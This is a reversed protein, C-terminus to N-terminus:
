GLTQMLLAISFFMWAKGLQKSHIRTRRSAIWMVITASLGLFIELFNNITAMEKEPVIRTLFIQLAVIFLSFALYWKVSRLSRKSRIFTQDFDLTADLNRPTKAM